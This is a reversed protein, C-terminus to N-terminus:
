RNSLEPEIVSLIIGAAQRLSRATYDPTRFPGPLWETENGNTLLIARCGARKGAEVDNLIDGIMWSETLNIGHEAAARLFLGPAPKRCGCDGEAHPCYYFGDVRVGYRESLTKRLYEGVAEVDERSFFGKAVGDQNSVVFLRFGAQQLQQLAEGADAYWEVREPSVNYPVDRILTGDKDLFVAPRLRETLREYLGATLAAVQKWTYFDHVRRIGNEGMFRALVPDRLLARLRDALALPDRPPVLYGTYGNVVTHRIGGVKSGIVPVGCAMAELPTIGFPEYWPTTVFVDSAAYYDALAHQDRKGVFHVQDKVGLRRALAQLRGIEPTRVPDPDATEGGVVILRMHPEEGLLAVAELVTDIGKRPVMRGLQLLIRDEQRWGLKERAAARDRPSFVEPDVGNPIQEIRAADAGYLRILDRRDQPCLAVICDAERIIRNEIDIRSDPFRDAEKQIERRVMGLAHFTVVFPIGTEKRIDAAVLASMFFHAHILQYPNGERAAFRLLGDRFDDMYPLLEEKPVPEPPGATVHVVRVGKEWQVTEPLRPDDRRTFIDIAYGLLALHRSLEAVVVNQGGADTGGCLVLPSAHESIFALRKRM